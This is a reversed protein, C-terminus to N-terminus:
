RDKKSKQDESKGKSEVKSDSPKSISQKDHDKIQDKPHSHHHNGHRENHKPKSGMIGHLSELLVGVVVVGIGTGKFPSISESGNHISLLVSFVKRTTTVLALAIPGRRSLLMFVFINGFCSLVCVLIQDYFANISHSYLSFTDYIEGGAFWVVLSSLGIFFSTLFMFQFTSPNHEARVEQQFFGAISEIVLGVISIILTLM